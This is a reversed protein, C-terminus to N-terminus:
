LNKIKMDINVKLMCVFLSLTFLQFIMSHAFWAVWHMWNPVGMIKMSAKLQKNKEVALLKIWIKASFEFCFLIAALAFDNISDFYPFRQMRVSPMEKQTKVKVFARAIANQVVLFNKEDQLTRRRLATSARLSYRLDM